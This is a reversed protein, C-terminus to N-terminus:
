NFKWAAVIKVGRRAGRIRLAGNESFRYELAAPGGNPSYHLGFNTTALPFSKEKESSFTPLPKNAYEKNIRSLMGEDSRGQRAVTHYEPNLQEDQRVATKVTATPFKATPESTLKTTSDASLNAKLHASSKSLEAVANISQANALQVCMLMSFLIFFLVKLTNM